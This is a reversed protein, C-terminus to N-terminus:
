APSTMKRTGQGVMICEKVNPNVPPAPEAPAEPGVPQTREQSAARASM